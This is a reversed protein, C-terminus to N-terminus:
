RFSPALSPSANVMHRQRVVDLVNPRKTPLLNANPHPEVMDPQADGSCSPPLSIATTGLGFATSALSSAGRSYPKFNAPFLSLGGSVVPCLHNLYAKM